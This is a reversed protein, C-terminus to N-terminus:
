PFSIALFEFNWLLTAFYFGKSTTLTLQYGLYCLHYAGYWAEFNSSLPFSLV